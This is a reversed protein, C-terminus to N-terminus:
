QNKGQDTKEKLNMGLFFLLGGIAVFVIGLSKYAEEMTASFVLGLAIVIIAGYIRMQWNNLIKIM